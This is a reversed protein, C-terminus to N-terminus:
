CGGCMIMCWRDILMGSGIRWRATISTGIFSRPQWFCGSISPDDCEEALRESANKLSWHSEQAVVMVAHSAADWFSRRVRCFVGARLSRMRRQWFDRAVEGHEAGQVMDMAM